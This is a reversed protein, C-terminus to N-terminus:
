SARRRPDFLRWALLMLGVVVTLAVGIPILALWNWRWPAGGYAGFWIVPLQRFTQATDSASFQEPGSFVIVYRGTEDGSGAEVRLTYRTEPELTVEREGGKWFRALSFPEFEADRVDEGPDPILTSEGGEAGLVLTPRFESHEDYAPVIIGVVRRVPEAVTFEYEDADEGPALYGYIARSAEPGDIPITAQADPDEIGPVHAASPTALALALMLAAVAAIGSVERWTHARQM